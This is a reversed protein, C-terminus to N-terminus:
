QGLGRVLQAAYFREARTLARRFLGALVWALSRFWGPSFRRPVALRYATLLRRSEQGLVIVFHRVFLGTLLAAGGRTGPRIRLTWESWPLMRAGSVVFVFVGITRLTLRGSAGDGLWGLVLLIASFSVIPWLALLGATWRRSVALHLVVGGVVLIVLLPVSQVFLLSGAFVLAAAAGAFRPIM